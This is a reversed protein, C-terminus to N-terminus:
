REPLTQTIEDITFMDMLELIAKAASRPSLFLAGCFVREEYEDVKRDPLDLNRFISFSEGIITRVQESRLGYDM